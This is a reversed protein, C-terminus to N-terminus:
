ACEQLYATTFLRLPYLASVYPMIGLERASHGALSDPTAVGTLDAALRMAAYAIDKPDGEPVGHNLIWAYGTAWDKKYRRLRNPLIIGLIDDMTTSINEDMGIGARRSFYESVQRRESALPLCEQIAVIHSERDQEYLEFLKDDISKFFAHQVAECAWGSRLSEEYFVVYAFAPVTGCLATWLRAHQWQLSPEYQFGESTAGGAAAILRVAKEVHNRNGLAFM